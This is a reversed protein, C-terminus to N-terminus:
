VSPKGNLMEQLTNRLLQADVPKALYGDFGRTLIEERNGMM